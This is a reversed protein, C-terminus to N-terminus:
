STKNLFDRSERYSRLRILTLHPYDQPNAFVAGYRRRNKHWTKLFWLLISDKTFFQKFLEETNGNCIKEGTYVRHLTRKLLRWFNPWFPMDLWILTDAAPWTIHQARDTYNGAVVWREGRIAERLLRRFDEVPREQWGPLHHLEDLDIYALGQKAALQQALTSKGSGTTGIVVVRQM